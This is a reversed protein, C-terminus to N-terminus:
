SLQPHANVLSVVPFDPDDSSLVMEVFMGRPLGQIPLIVKYYFEYRDKHEERTERIQKVNGGKTVYRFLEQKIGAPTLGCYEWANQRIHRSIRESWLVCNSLGSQLAKVVLAHEVPNDM